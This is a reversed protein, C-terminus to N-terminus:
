KDAVGIAYWLTKHTRDLVLVTSGAKGKEVTLADRGMGGGLLALVALIVSWRSMIKGKRTSFPM